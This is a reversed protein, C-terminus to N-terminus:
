RAQRKANDVTGGITQHRNTGSNDGTVRVVRVIFNEVEVLIETSNSIKLFLESFHGYPCDELARGM